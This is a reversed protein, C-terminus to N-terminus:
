QPIVTANSFGLSMCVFSAFVWDTKGVDLMLFGVMAIGPGNGNDNGNRWDLRRFHLHKSM